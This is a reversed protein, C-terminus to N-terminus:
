DYYYVFEVCMNRRRGRDLVCMSVGLCVYRYVFGIFLIFNFCVVLSLFLFFDVLNVFGSFMFCLVYYVYKRCKFYLILWVKLEKYYIGLFIIVLDYLFEM